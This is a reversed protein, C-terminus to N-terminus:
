TMKNKLFFKLQKDHLVALFVIIVVYSCVNTQRSFSMQILVWFSPILELVMVNINDSAM